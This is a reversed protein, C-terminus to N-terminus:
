CCCLLPSPFDEYLDTPITIKKLNGRDDRYITKRQNLTSLIFYDGSKYIDFVADPIADPETPNLFSNLELPYVEEENGLQDYRVIEYNVNFNSENAEFSYIYNDEVCISSVM